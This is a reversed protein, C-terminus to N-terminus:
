KSLENGPQVKSLWGLLEKDFLESEEFHPAHGSKEFVRVTMDKFHERVNFSPPFFAVHFHV